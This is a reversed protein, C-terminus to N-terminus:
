TLDCGKSNHHSDCQFEGGVKGEKASRWGACPGHLDERCLRITSLDFRMLRYCGVVENSRGGSGSNQSGSLRSVTASM